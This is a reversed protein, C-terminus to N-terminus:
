RGDRGLRKLRDLWAKRETEGIAEVSGIITQRIPGLGAFKLINRELSRLSHALFFYRYIWAPMGMTVVIRVSKGTLLGPRLSVTEPKVAFGPRFVQEFFAKLLAPMSGLWLPYIIVLHDAWGIAEQAQRIGPAPEGTRWEEQSRLFAIDSKALTIPRVSHGAAEAGEAYAQALAHCYRDARPDPHGDIIVIKGAM